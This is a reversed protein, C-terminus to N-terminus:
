YTLTVTVNTSCPDPSWSQDECVKTITRGKDATPDLTDYDESHTWTGTTIRPSQDTGSHDYCPKGDVCPVWYYWDSQVYVSNGGAATDKYYYGNRLSQHNHVTINGYFAANGDGNARIPSAQNGYSVAYAPAAWSLAAVLGLVGAVSRVRM